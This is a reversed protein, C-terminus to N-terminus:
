CWEKRESRLRVFGIGGRCELCCFLFSVALNTVGVGLEFFLSCHMGLILLLLLLVSGPPADGLPPLIFSSPLSLFLGFGFLLSLRFFTVLFLREALIFLM